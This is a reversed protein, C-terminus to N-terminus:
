IANALPLDEKVVDLGETHVFDLHSDVVGEPSDPLLAGVLAPRVPRQSDQYDVVIPVKDGCHFAEQLAIGVFDDRGIVLFFGHLYYLRRPRVEHKQVDHHLTQTVAYRNTLLELIVPLESVNWYKNDRGYSLFRSELDGGM